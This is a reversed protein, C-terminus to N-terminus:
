VRGALDNTTLTAILHSEESVSSRFRFYGWQSRFLVIGFATGKLEWLSGLFLTSINLAVLSFIVQYYAVM